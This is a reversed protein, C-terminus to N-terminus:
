IQPGSIVSSRNGIVSGAVQAGGIQYFLSSERKYFGQTHFSDDLHLHAYDLHHCIEHLLTRLFTKFAVIQGRKATLMWVKITPSAAGEGATYLGHLEGRTNSPRTGSVRVRVRHIALSLCIEDAVAQAALEVREPAGDVLLAPIAGVARRLRPSVQLRIAPVSDSRDYIRQQARTLRHRSGPM